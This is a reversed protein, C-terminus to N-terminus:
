LLSHTHTHTHTHVFEHLWIDFFSVDPWLM